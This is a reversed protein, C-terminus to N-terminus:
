MLLVCHTSERTQLWYLINTASGSDKEELWRQDETKKWLRRDWHGGPQLLASDTHPEISREWGSRAPTGRGVTGASAAAVTACDMGQASLVTMNTVSGTTASATSERCGGTRLLVFANAVTVPAKEM